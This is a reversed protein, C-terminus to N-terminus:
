VLIVVAGSAKTLKISVIDVTYSIFDGEADTLGIVVEGSAVMADFSPLIWPKIAHSVFGTEYHVLTVGAGCRVLEMAAEVASNGGGVVVVDDGVVVM